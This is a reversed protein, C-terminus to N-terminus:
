YTKNIKWIRYSLSLLFAGIAIFISALILIILEKLLLILLGIFICGLGIKLLLKAGLSDVNSLIQM